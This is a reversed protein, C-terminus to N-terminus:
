NSSYLYFDSYNQEDLMVEIPFNLGGMGTIGIRM